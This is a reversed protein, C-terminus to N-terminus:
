LITVRLEVHGMKVVSESTLPMDGEIKRGDLWTANSTSINRVFVQRGKQTIECQLRSVTPDWLIPITCSADRGISVTGQLPTDFKRQPSHIDQLVLIHAPSQDWIM